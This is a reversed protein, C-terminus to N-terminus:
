AVRDAQLGVRIRSTETALAAAEALGTVAGTRTNVSTVGATSGDSSIEFEVAGQGPVQVWYIGKALWRNTMGKSTTVLPTSSPTTGTKDTYTVAPTTGDEAFLSYATSKLLKNNTDVLVDAWLVATM